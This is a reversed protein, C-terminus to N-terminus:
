AALLSRCGNACSMRKEVIIQVKPCAALDRRLLESFALCKYAALPSRLGTEYVCKSPMFVLYGLLSERLVEAMGAGGVEGSPM